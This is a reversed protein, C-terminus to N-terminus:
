VHAAKWLRLNDFVPRSIRTASTLPNSAIWHAQIGVAFRNGDRIRYVAGGSQGGVVEGGHHITRATVSTIRRAEYWQQAGGRDGPYGVLNVVAGTLTSDAYTGFGLWGTRDGLASDLVIAGYNYEEDGNETWGRVSYFRTSTVAGYPLENADRGPMVEISSVWGRRTPLPTNIFVCQGATVLVRPSIFFATGIWQSGDRATIRLACHARWPYSTAPSIRIREDVRSVSEAYPVYHPSAVSVDVLGGLDPVTFNSGTWSM